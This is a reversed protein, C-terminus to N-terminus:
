RETWVKIIPYTGIYKTLYDTFTVGWRIYEHIDGFYSKDSKDSKNSYCILAFLRELAHRNKRTKIEPLLKTFIQFKNNLDNLHKWKIVSMVGFCGHWLDKEHYLKILEDSHPMKECLERIWSYIEDDFTHKFSWLFRVNENPVLDDFKIRAQIFVSDHLIIATDFPKLKYFYYYPLLEASNKHETDYIVTCNELIINEKLYKKNSSDDIILILENYFKRICTYCEKWYYDTIKNNVHRIIIFGITEM